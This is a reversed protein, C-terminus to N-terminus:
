QQVGLVIMSVFFLLTCAVGIVSMILSRMERAKVFRYIHRAALMSFYVAWASLGLLPEEILESILVIIVSLAGGAAMGVKSADAILQLEREDSKGENEKRSMALIDEKKM